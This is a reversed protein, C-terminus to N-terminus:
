KGEKLTAIPQRGAFGADREHWHAVRDEGLKWCLCVDHGQHRGTFDILGLTYDKLECGLETLEDVYDELRELRQELQAQSAPQERPPLSPIRSQLAVAEAHTRVIDGVIRRVLPLARDAEAATFRRKARPSDSSEPSASQPGRMPVAKGADGPVPRRRPHSDLV